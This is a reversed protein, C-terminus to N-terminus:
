FYTSRIKKLWGNIDPSLRLGIAITWFVTTLVVTNLIIKTIPPATYDVFYCILIFSASIVFAKAFQKDFPQLQYVRYLLYWRSINIVTMVILSAVAAGALEYHSILFYNLGILLVATVVSFYMNYRYHKSSAIIAANVGTGMEVVIGIGLVLYIYSYEIYEAYKPHLSFVPNIVTWGLGLLFSSILLLNVCSKQYIDRITKQDNKEWAESIVVQAIRLIANTPILIFRAAFFLISYIGLLKFSTMELIMLQDIYVVVSGSAGLLMGFLIYEYIKKREEPTRLERAPMVIRETKMFAFITVLLGPVCFSLAYIYVFSDFTILASAYLVMSLVIILKNMFTDLFVGIFTNYLMKAYGDINYFIIRFFIMPFVLFAFRRFLEMDTKSNAFSDSFFYFILFSIGVGILSLWIGLLLFGHHGKEANRYKPFLKILIQNYGLNLFSVFAGSITDLIMVLGVESSSPVFIPTLMRVIGGIGAGAFNIITNRLAQRQIIGM